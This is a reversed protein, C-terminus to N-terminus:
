EVDRHDGQLCRGFDPPTYNADFPDDPMDMAVTPM